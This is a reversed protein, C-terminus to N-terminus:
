TKGRIKRNYRNVSVRHCIRCTRGGSKRLITNESTFEHGRRCKRGRFGKNHATRNPLKGKGIADLINDKQTGAFLHDPNVCPPNDCRHCAVKGKPFPVGHHLEWAIHTAYRDRGDSMRGYGKVRCATWEWCETSAGIKVKEFFREMTSKKRKM